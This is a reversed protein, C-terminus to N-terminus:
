SRAAAQRPGFAPATPFLNRRMGVLGAAAARAAAGTAGAIEALAADLTTLLQPEPPRRGERALRSFHADLGQTLADFPAVAAAPIAPRSGQVAVLNMAVRLDALTAEGLADRHEGAGALKPSLLAIRDVLRATFDGLEPAARSRAIAALGRWTRRLLRRVAAEASMSRLARTVMISVFVGVFQALNANLFGAFDPTFREQLALATVFTIIFPVARGNTQPEAAYLGAIILPPALAAALLWFGDIAPLVAFVYLAAVPMSLFAYFGFNAIQPAPDDQAAFFSCFVATMMAATGGDTWGLGIWLACCILIAIVATAGSLLALPPDVHLPRRVAAAIAQDTEPAVPADPERLHALLGHAEGLAAVAEGLRLLLSETLLSRWDGTPLVAARAQIRALLDRWDADAPAGRRIWAATAQCLETAAPELGGEGELAAMRDSLGSLVPILMLMRDHLARVAARTDRLRSTDFPLHSALIHIESAAAALETRDRASAAQGREGLVDLAWRGAGATWQELRDQLARGVPRPFVLSHALSACIIGLGIEVVRSVAVDFVAQPQTVAPFGILAATYGALMVLYSRPTRDLLSVALCGGVWLALALSLLSPTNVLNPVLAVTAVGGLITGLVRYAAKSRVAGSLPQSVIYATSMAWYPRPLGAALAIGLAALAAVFSNLSFLLTHRNLKPM